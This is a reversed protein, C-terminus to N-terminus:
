LYSIFMIIDRGNRLFVQVAHRTVICAIGFLLQLYEISFLFIVNCHALVFFQVNWVFFIVLIVLSSNYIVGLQVSSYEHHTDTCHTVSLRKVVRKEDDYFYRHLNWKKGLKLKQTQKCRVVSILAWWQSFYFIFSLSLCFFFAEGEGGELIQCICNCSFLSNGHGICSGWAYGAYGGSWWMQWSFHFLNLPM